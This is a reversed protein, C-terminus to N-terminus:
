SKQKIKNKFEQTAKDFLDPRCLLELVTLSLTKISRLMQERAAPSATYQAFAQTHNAVDFPAIKVTPHLCPFEYSLNGIDLSGQGKDPNKKLDGGLEVWHKEFLSGMVGNGRYDKYLPAIERWTVKTGSAHAAAEACRKVKMIVDVCEEYDEGRCSFQGIAKEPVINPKEGGYTIIGPTRVSPKMQKRLQDISIFMQILGDLANVGAWPMAAAHAPKGTFEFEWAQAALTRLRIRSENSPHVMLAADIDEFAGNELMIVKGGLNEEGPTGIVAIRGSLGKMLPKLVIGVYTSITGILNHGCAHGLSGLADYEALLALCPGERAGQIEARFATEMGGYSKTVNFQHRELDSVLRGSSELEEGGDEPHSHIYLATEWAEEAIEDARALIKHSMDKFDIM